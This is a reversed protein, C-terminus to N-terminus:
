KSAFQQRAEALDISAINRYARAYGLAAATGHYASEDSINAGREREREREEEIVRGREHVNAYERQPALRERGTVQAM